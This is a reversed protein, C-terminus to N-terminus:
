VVSLSAFARPGKSDPKVLLAPEGPRLVIQREFRIVAEGTGGPKVEGEEVLAPIFQMGAYASVQMGTHVSDKSFRSVSVKARGGGTARLAGPEALVFGRELEGADAGKAAIGVREGAAAEEVDDDHVQLSRAVIRKGSPLLELEQHRKVSGQAVMGLVVSGVSKVAFSHDIPVIAPGGERKPVFALVKERIQGADLQVVAYQELSTGKVLARVSSEDAGDGLALIGDRKGLLDLAVVTEAFFKDVAEVAVVAFDCLGICYLLPQIKDPYLTPELFVATNGSQKMNYMTFDSATGKKGLEKGIEKSGLLAVNVCGM